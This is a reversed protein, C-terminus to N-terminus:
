FSKLYVAAKAAIKGSVLAAPGTHGHMSSMSTIVDYDILQM